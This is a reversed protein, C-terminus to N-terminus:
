SNSQEEKVQQAKKFIARLKEKHAEKEMRLKDKKRKLLKSHKAKNAANKEVGKKSM